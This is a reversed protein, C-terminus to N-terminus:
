ASSDPRDREAEIYKEMESELWTDFGKLPSEDNQHNTEALLFPLPVEALPYFERRLADLRDVILLYDFIQPAKHELNRDSLYLDPRARSGFPSFLGDGQDITMILRIVDTSVYGSLGLIRQNTRGIREVIGKMAEAVTLHGTAGVRHTKSTPTVRRCTETVNTLTNEQVGSFGAAKHLIEMLDSATEVVSYMLPGVIAYINRRDRRLPMRVILLYFIFAGVYAICLDYFLDGVRAGGRFAEPVNILLVHQAFAFLLAAWNLAWLLRNLKREFPSLYSLEKAQQLRSRLAALM